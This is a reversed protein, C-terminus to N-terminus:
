SPSACAVECKLCAAVNGSLSYALFTEYYSQIYYANPAKPGAATEDHTSKLCLSAICCMKWMVAWRQNFSLLLTWFCTSSPQVPLDFVVKWLLLRSCPRLGHVLSQSTYAHILARFGQQVDWSHCGDNKPIIPGMGVHNHYIIIIYVLFFRHNGVYRSPEAHWCHVSLQGKFRGDHAPDWFTRAM